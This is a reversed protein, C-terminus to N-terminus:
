SKIIAFATAKAARIKKARDMARRIGGRYGMYGNYLQDYGLHWELAVHTVADKVTQGAQVSSRM